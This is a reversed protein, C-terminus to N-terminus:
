KKEEEWNGILVGDPTVAWVDPQEGKNKPGKPDYLLPKNWPDILLTATPKLFPPDGETLVKLNDPSKDHNLRYIDLANSIVQIKSKLTLMNVSNFKQFYAFEKIFLTRVEPLLDIRSLEATRAALIEKLRQEEEASLQPRAKPFEAIRKDIAQLKPLSAEASAKDKVTKLGETLESMLKLVETSTGENQAIVRSVSLFILSAIFLYSRM